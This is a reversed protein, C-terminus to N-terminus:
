KKFLDGYRSELYELIEEDTALPIRMTEPFVKQAAEYVLMDQWVSETLIRLFKKRNGLDGFSVTDHSENTRIEKATAPIFGRAHLDNLVEQMSCSYIVDFRSLGKEMFESIVRNKHQKGFDQCYRLSRRYGDLDRLLIRAMGNDPKAQCDQLYHYFGIAPDTGFGPTFPQNRGESVRKWQYTYLSILRKRPDRMVSFVFDRRLSKLGQYTIHGSLYPVNCAFKFALSNNILLGSSKVKSAEKDKEDILNSIHLPLLDLAQCISNTLSTGATKPIHLLGFRRSAHNSEM